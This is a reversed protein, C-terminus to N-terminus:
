HTAPQTARILPAIRPHAHLARFRESHLTGARSHLRPVVARELVAAASDTHGLELLGWALLPGAEPDPPDEASRRLMTAASDKAGARALMIGLLLKHRGAWPAAAQDDPPLARVV